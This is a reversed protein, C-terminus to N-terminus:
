FYLTTTALTTTLFRKKQPPLETKVRRVGRPVRIIKLYLDTKSVNEQYWEALIKLYQWKPLNGHDRRLRTLTEQLVFGELFRIQFTMTPRPTGYARSSVVARVRTPM